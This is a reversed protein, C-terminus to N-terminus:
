ENGGGVLDEVREYQPILGDFGATLQEMFPRLEPPANNVFADLLSRAGHERLPQTLAVVAAGAASRRDVESAIFPRMADSAVDVLHAGFEADNM